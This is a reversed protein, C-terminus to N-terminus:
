GSATSKATAVWGDPGETVQYETPTIDNDNHYLEAAVTVTTGQPPVTGIRVLVADDLVPAGEADKDIAQDEEDVFRVVADDAVGDVVGVQVDLPIPKDNPFPTVYVIPKQEEEHPEGAAVTRVIAAYVDSDRSSTDEGSGGDDGCSTLVALTVIVLCAVFRSFSPVPM